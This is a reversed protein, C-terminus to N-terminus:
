TTLSCSISNKMNNFSQLFEPSIDKIRELTEQSKWKRSLYELVAIHFDTKGLEHLYNNIIDREVNLNLASYIKMLIAANRFFPDQIRKEIETAKNFEGARSCREAEFVQELVEDLENIGITISTPKIKCEYLSIPRNLGTLKEATAYHRAYIHFTGVYWSLKGVKWGLTNAIIEHM